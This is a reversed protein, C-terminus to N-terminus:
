LNWVGLNAGVNVIIKIFKRIAHLSHTFVRIHRGDCRHIIGPIALVVLGISQRNYGRDFEIFISFIKHDRSDRVFHLKVIKFRNHLFGCGRGGNGNQGGRYFDRINTPIGERLGNERGGIVVPVYLNPIRVDRLRQVSILLVFLPTPGNLEIVIVAVYHRTSAIILFNLNPGETLTVTDCGDIGFDEDAADVEIRSDFSLQSKPSGIM